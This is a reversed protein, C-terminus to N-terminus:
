FAGQNISCADVRASSFGVFATQTGVIGGGFAVHTTVTKLVGPGFRMLTRFTGICSSFSTIKMNMDHASMSTFSGMSTWM